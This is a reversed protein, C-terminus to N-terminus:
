LVQGIPKSVVDRNSQQHGIQNRVDVRVLGGVDGIDQFESAEPAIQQSTSRSSGRQESTM